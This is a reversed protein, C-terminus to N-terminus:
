CGCANELTAAQISALIAHSTISGEHSIYVELDRLLAGVYAKMFSCVGIEGQKLSIFIGYKKVTQWLSIHV